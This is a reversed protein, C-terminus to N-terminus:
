RRRELALSDKHQQVLDVIEANRAAERESMMERVARHHEQKKIRKREITMLEIRDQEALLQLQHRRFEAEEEERQRQRIELDRIQEELHLKNQLQRRISEELQQRDMSIQKDRLEKSKLEILVEERELKKRQLDM